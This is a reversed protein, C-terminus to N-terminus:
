RRRDVYRYVIRPEIVHKWKRGRFEKDFVRELSPPRIEVTGEFAKRNIGDYSATGVGSPRPILQQTYFTDRLTVEPRLSWGEM